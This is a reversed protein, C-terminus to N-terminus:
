VATVDLRTDSVGGYVKYTQSNDGNMKVRVTDGAALLARLHFFKQDSLYTSETLMFMYFPSALGNIEYLFNAGVGDAAPTWEFAATFDLDYLGATPVTVANGALAAPDGHHVTDFPILATISGSIDARTLFGVSINFKEAGGGGSAVARPTYWLNVPDWVLAQGDTPAAAPNVPVLKEHDQGQHLAAETREFWLADATPDGAVWGESKNVWDRNKVYPFDPM